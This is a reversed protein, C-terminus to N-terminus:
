PPSWLFMNQWTSYITGVTNRHGKANKKDLRKSYKEKRELWSDPIKVRLSLFEVGM